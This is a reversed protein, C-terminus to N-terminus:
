GLYVVDIKLGKTVITKQSQKMISKHQNEKRGDLTQCVTMKHLVSYHYHESIPSKKFYESLLIDAM